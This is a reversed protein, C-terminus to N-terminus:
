RFVRIKLRTQSSLSRRYWHVVGGSFRSFTFAGGQIVARHDAGDLFPLVTYFLIDVRKGSLRGQVRTLFM